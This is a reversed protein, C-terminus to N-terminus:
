KSKFKAAGDLQDYFDQGFKRILAEKVFQYVPVDEKEGLSCAASCIDWEDYNVATLNVEPNGSVRIPYLHCSIPKKFDTIGQLHAKEIQCELFGLETEKLFVCSGDELLNTGVFSDNRYKKYLGSSEIKDVAEKTLMSKIQPYLKEVQKIEDKELPAGFDGSRCCAGKCKALDCIFKKEVVEDSILIDNIVILISKKAEEKFSNQQM